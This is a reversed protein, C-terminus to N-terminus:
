TDVRPNEEPIWRKPPTSRAAGGSTGECSTVSCTAWGWVDGCLFHGFLSGGVLRGREGARGAPCGLRGGRQAEGPESPRGRRAPELRRPMLGLGSGGVVGECPETALGRPVRGARWSSSTGGPKRRPPRGGPRSGAPSVNGGDDGQHPGGGRCLRSRPGDEPGRGRGDDRRGVRRGRGQPPRGGLRLGPPRGM